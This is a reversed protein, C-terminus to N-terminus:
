KWRKSWDKLFEVYAATIVAFLKKGKDATAVLSDGYAGTISKQMGWTSIFVRGYFPWDTFKLTDVDTLRDQRVNEPCLYLMLSTEYEGAHCSGKKGRELIKEIEQRAIIHPATVVLYVGYCDAIKRAVVELAGTHNGHGSIVVIKHFGMKVLSSCIDEMLSIFTELRLNLCGPWRMVERTSYGTWVTPTVLVPVEGKLEQAVKRAIAEVLFADTKVPLHWGHEEIQGVPVLVILKKKRDEELEEWTKEAWFVTEREEKQRKGEM